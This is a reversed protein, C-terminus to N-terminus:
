GASPLSDVSAGAGTRTGNVNMRDKETGLAGRKVKHSQQWLGGSGKERARYWDEVSGNREKAWSRIYLLFLVLALGLRGRVGLRMAGLEAATGRM